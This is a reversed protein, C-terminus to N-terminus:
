PRRAPKPTLPSSWSGDPERTPSPVAHANPWPSPPAATGHPEPEAPPGSEVSPESGATDSPTGNDPAPSPAPVRLTFRQSPQDGPPEQASTREQRAAPPSQAPHLFWGAPPAVGPWSGPDAPPEADTHRPDAPQSGHDAPQADADPQRPGPVMLGPPVSWPPMLNVPDDWRFLGTRQREEERSDDQSAPINRNGSSQNSETGM